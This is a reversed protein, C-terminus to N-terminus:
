SKQERVCELIDGVTLMEELDEETIEIQFTERLVAALSEADTSSMGLEELSTTENLLSPDTNLEESLVTILQQLLKM